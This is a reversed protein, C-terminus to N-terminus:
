SVIKGVALKKLIEIYATSLSGGVSKSALVYHDCTGPASSSMSILYNDVHSRGHRLLRRRERM